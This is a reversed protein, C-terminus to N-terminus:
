QRSARSSRMPGTLLSIARFMIASLKPSGRENQSRAADSGFLFRDRAPLAFPARARDRAADVRPEYARRSAGLHCYPRHVALAHAGRVRLPSGLAGGRAQHFEPLFVADFGAAATEVQLEQRLRDRAV